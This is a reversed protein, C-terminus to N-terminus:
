RSTGIQLEAHGMTGQPTEVWVLKKFEFARKCRQIIGSANELTLHTMLADPTIPLVPLM